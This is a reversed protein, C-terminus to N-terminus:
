ACGLSHKPWVRQWVFDRTVSLPYTITTLSLPRCPADSCWPRRKVLPISLHRSSQAPSRLLRGRRTLWLLQSVQWRRRRPMPRALPPPPLLLLPLLLCPMPLLPLLLAWPRCRRIVKSPRPQRTRTRPAPAARQAWARTATPAQPHHPPLTPLCFPSFHSSAANAPFLLCCAPWCAAVEGARACTCSSLLM